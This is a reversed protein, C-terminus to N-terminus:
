RKGMTPQQEAGKRKRKQYFGETADGRRRLLSAIERQSTSAGKEPVDGVALMRGGSKWSELKEVRGMVGTVYGRKERGPAGTV